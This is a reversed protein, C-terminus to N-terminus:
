NQISDANDFREKLNIVLPQLFDKFERSTFFLTYHSNLVDGGKEDLMHKRITLEINDYAHEKVVITTTLGSAKSLEITTDLPETM